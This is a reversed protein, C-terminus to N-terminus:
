LPDIRETASSLLHLQLSTRRGCDTGAPPSGKGRHNLRGWRWSSMALPAAAKSWIVPGVSWMITVVVNWSGGNTGWARLLARCPAISEVQLFLLHLHQSWCWSAGPPQICSRINTVALGFPYEDTRRINWQSALFNIYNQTRHGCWRQQATAGLTVAKSVNLRFSGFTKNACSVTTATFSLVFYWLLVAVGSQLFFIMASVLPYRGWNILIARRIRALM